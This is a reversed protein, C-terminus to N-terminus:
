KRELLSLSSKRGEARMFEIFAGCVPSRARRGHTVLYFPRELDLGQVKVARLRGAAVEDAVAVRSLISAGVGALVAQRVAETSGMEAVVLLDSLGVKKRALAKLTMARTGSGDERIVFPVRKLRAPSISEGPDAWGNWSPRAP